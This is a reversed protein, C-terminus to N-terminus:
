NSATMRVTFDLGLWSSAGTGASYAAIQRAINVRKEEWERDPPRLPPPDGGM